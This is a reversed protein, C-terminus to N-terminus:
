RVGFTLLIAIVLEEPPGDAVEVVAGRALRITEEYSAIYARCSACVSLHLEFDSVKEPPLEHALYDGLFAIVEHCTM